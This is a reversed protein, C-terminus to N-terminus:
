VRVNIWTAQSVGVLNGDEGYIASAVFEKRGEKGLQWGIAICREGVHVHGDLRASMEGLVSPIPTTHICSGFFAPCDLAAWVFENPIVQNPTLSADPVWPTAVVDRDRLPGAFLRMGDGAARDTGCVFCRPFAHDDRAAYRDTAELADDFSPAAPVDIDIRTPWAQALTHGGDTLTVVDNGKAVALEREMPVSGSLRVRVPGSLHDALKSAVYGGNASGPPGCFRSAISLIMQVLDFFLSFLAFPVRM